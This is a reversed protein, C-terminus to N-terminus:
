GAKQPAPTGSAAEKLEDHQARLERIFSISMLLAAVTTLIDAAPQAYIYGDFGLQANLILVLPLYLICQRGLSILMARVAKGTAQFTVMLTMQMGIFPAGWCFAHLIKTGAGIM